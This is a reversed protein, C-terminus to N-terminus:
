GEKFKVYNAMLKHFPTAIKWEPELLNTKHAEQTTFLRFKLEKTTLHQELRIAKMMSAFDMETAIM